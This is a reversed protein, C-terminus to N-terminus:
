IHILSLNRGQGGSLDALMSMALSFAGVTAAGQLFRVVLVLAFAPEGTSGLLALGAYGVAGLVAGAAVFPVRRGATDSAAGWVGAAIAFAAFEAALFWTSAGLADGAGLAEVLLDVGPYLLVQALMVAWVVLALVFRDRASM